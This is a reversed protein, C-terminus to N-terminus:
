EGGEEGESDSSSTEKQQLPNKSKNKRERFM